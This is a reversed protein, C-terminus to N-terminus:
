LLPNDGRLDREEETGTILRASRDYTFYSWSWQVLVLLRNRFSVIKLLHIALWMIWAVLGSVHLKGFDAM